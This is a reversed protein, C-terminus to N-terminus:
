TPFEYQSKQLGDHWYYTRGTSRSVMQIWGTPLIMTGSGPTVAPTVCQVAAERSNTFTQSGVTAVEVLKQLGEIKCELFALMLDQVFTETQLGSPISTPHSARKPQEMIRAMSESQSLAADTDPGSDGIYFHDSKDMSATEAPDSEDCSSASTTNTVVAPPLASSSGLLEAIVDLTESIVTSTLHRQADAASAIYGLVQQLPMGRVELNSGSLLSRMSAVHLMTGFNKAARGTIDPQSKLLDSHLSKAAACAQDLITPSISTASSIHDSCPLLLERAQQLTCGHVVGRGIRLTLGQNRVKPM